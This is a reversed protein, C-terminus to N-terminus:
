LLNEIDIKSSLRALLSEMTKTLQCSLDLINFSHPFEEIFLGNAVM